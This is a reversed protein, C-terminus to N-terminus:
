IAAINRNQVAKTQIKPPVYGNQRNQIVRPLVGEECAEEVDCWEGELEHRFRDEKLEPTIDSTPPLLKVTNDVIVTLINESAMARGYGSRFSPFTRKREIISKGAVIVGGTALIYDFITLQALGAVVAGGIGFHVYVHTIAASSGVTIGGGIPLEDIIITHGACVVGGTAIDVSIETNLSSGNCVVGGTIAPNRILQLTAEGGVVVGGSATGPAIGDRIAAGAIVVGGSIPPLVLHLETNTGGVLVGGSAVDTHVVSPKSTSNVEVGGTGSVTHFFTEEATGNVLVGGESAIPDIVAEGGCKVGGSTTEFYPVVVAVGTIRVGYNELDSRIQDGIGWVAVYWGGNAQTSQFYDYEEDTLHKGGVIPSFYDGPPKISYNFLDNIGNDTNDWIKAVTAQDGEFGTFTIRWSMFYADANPDFDLWVQAHGSGGSDTLSELDVSWNPITHQKWALGSGYAVMGGSATFFHSILGLGGCIVGGSVTENCYHTNLATGGCLVGGTGIFPEVAALGGCLVGGSGTTSYTCAVTASGACLAGGLPYIGHIVDSTGGCTVGGGVEVTDGLSCDATGGCLVGGSGRNDYICFVDGSGACVCGGLPYIGHVVDATSNCLVGGSATVDFNTWGHGNCVVGGDSDPSYRCSVTATGGAKVGGAATENFINHWHIALEFFDVFAASAGLEGEVALVVGFNTDNIQSIPWVRNWPDAAGGYAAVADTEDWPDPDSDPVTFTPDEGYTLRVQQDNVTGAAHREINAIIGDVFATSPLDFDFGRAWIGQSTINGTGASFDCVAYLNNSTLANSLTTWAQDDPDPTSPNDIQLIESPSKTTVAM